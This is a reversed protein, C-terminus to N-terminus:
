ELQQLNRDTLGIAVSRSSLTDTCGGARLLWNLSYSFAWRNVRRDIPSPVCRPNFSAHTSAAALSVTMVAGPKSGVETLDAAAAPRWEARAQGTPLRGAGGYLEVPPLRLESEERRRIVGM